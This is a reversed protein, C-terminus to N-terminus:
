SKWYVAFFNRGEAGVEDGRFEDALSNFINQKFKRM